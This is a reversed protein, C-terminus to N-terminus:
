HPSLISNFVAKNGLPIRGWQQKCLVEFSIAMDLLLFVSQMISLSILVPCQYCMDHTNRLPHLKKLESLFFILFEGQQEILFLCALTWVTNMQKNFHVFSRKSDHMGKLIAM